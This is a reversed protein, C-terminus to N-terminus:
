SSHRLTRAIAHMYRVAIQTWRGARHQIRSRRDRSPVRRQLAQLAHQERRTMGSIETKAAKENTTIINLRGSGPPVVPWASPTVMAAITSPGDPAIRASEM